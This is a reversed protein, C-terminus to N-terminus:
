SFKHCAKELKTGIGTYSCREFLTCLFLGVKSVQSELNSLQLKVAICYVFTKGKSCLGFVSLHQPMPANTM